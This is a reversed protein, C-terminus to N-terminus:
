NFTVEIPARVAAPKGDPGLAPKLRWHEVADLAKETLGCPLPKVVAIAAIQGEADVEVDFSVTGGAKAHVAEASFM